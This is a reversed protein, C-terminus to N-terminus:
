CFDELPEDFDDSMKINLHKAKGAQRFPKVLSSGSADSSTTQVVLRDFLDVTERLQHQHLYLQLLRVVLAKLEQSSIENGELQQSITDPLEITLTAM